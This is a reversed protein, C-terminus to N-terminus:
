AMSPQRVRGANAAGATGPLQEDKVDTVEIFEVGVVYLGDALPRVHMVSCRVCMPQRTSGRPLCVIVQQGEILQRAQLLGVGVSSINRTVATFPKGLSGDVNLPAIVITGQVDMRAARRKEIGGGGSQPAATMASVVEALHQPTLKM